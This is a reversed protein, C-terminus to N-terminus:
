GLAQEGAGREHHPELRVNGPHGASLVAHDSGPAEGSRLGRARGYSALLAMFVGDDKTYAHLVVWGYGGEDDHHRHTTASPCVGRTTRPTCIRGPPRAYEFAPPSRSRERARQFVPFLVEALIAIIAIM